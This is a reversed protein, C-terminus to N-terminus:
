KSRRFKESFERIERELEDMDVGPVETGGYGCTDCGGEYHMHEFNSRRNQLHEILALTFAKIM